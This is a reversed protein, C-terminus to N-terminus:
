IDLLLLLLLYVSPPIDPHKRTLVARLRALAESTYNRVTQESLGLAEAIDAVKYDAGRMAFIRRMNEPFRDIAEELTTQIEQAYLLELVSSEMQNMRSQFYERTQQHLDARYAKRIIKYKLATRAYALFTTKIDLHQRKEWIDAFIDQVLDEAEDPNKVRYYAAEYLPEWYQNFLQNFQTSDGAKIGALLKIDDLVVETRM